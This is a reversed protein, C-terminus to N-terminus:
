LVIQPLLIELGRSGLRAPGVREDAFYLAPLGDATVGEVVSRFMAGYSDSLQDPIYTGVNSGTYSLAYIRRRKFVVVRTDFSAADSINDGTIDGNLSLRPGYKAVIREDNGVGTTDTGPPTWVVDSDKTTDNNDGLM